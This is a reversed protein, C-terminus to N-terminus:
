QRNVTWDYKIFSVAYTEPIVEERWKNAYAIVSKAQRENVFDGTFFELIQSIEATKTSNNVRVHKTSNFFEKAGANLQAELTSGRFPERPLRPCGVSMCNLAVHVRPDGLTRITGNEYDYLSIERGGIRYELNKFFALRKFFSDFDKPIGREIVGYMALANYSNLYYALRDNSNPFMAPNSEPSYAGVWAVYQDLKTRQKALGQFNVRGQADVFERLVAGWTQEAKSVDKPVEVETPVRMTTACGFYNASVALLVAMRRVLFRASM